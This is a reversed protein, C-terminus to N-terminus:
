TALQQRAAGPAVALEIDRCDGERRHGYLMLGAAVHQPLSQMVEAAATQAITIKPQADVRGWMSGSADLIM